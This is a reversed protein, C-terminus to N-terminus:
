SNQKLLIKSQDLKSVRRLFSRYKKYDSAPFVGKKLIFTRKYEITKESIETVSFSYSGFKNEINVAEPLSDIILDKSINITFTDKETFGEAIKLNQKRNPYRAPVTVSQAFTNLELLLDNGITSCYNPVHITLNETFEIDNKNNQLTYDKISFGNIYGWRQKYHKELDETDLNELYYVEDYQLGKYVGTFDAKLSGSADVQVTAKKEEINEKFSYSKTHVIKGGEPTVVLVDRDDSFNGGYGFPTDQSTCELWIINDGDPVGLIAHNGEITAFDSDFDVEDDGAYLITYYSPVGVVDLLAKTYNTLAKCDGYSLKDVDKALMPKWGGIGIQVSIYRVKNQLYEYIKKAKAINTTENAALQKAKAVTAPPLDSVGTLLKEDM